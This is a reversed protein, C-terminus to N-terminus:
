YNMQFVSTVKYNCLVSVYEACMYEQFKFVTCHTVKYAHDDYDSIQSYSTPVLYGSRHGVAM